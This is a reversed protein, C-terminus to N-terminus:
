ARPQDPANQRTQKSVGHESSLQSLQAALTDRRRCFDDWADLASQSEAFLHEQWDSGIRDSLMRRLHRRVGRRLRATFAWLLFMGWLALWFLSLLYVDWGFLPRPDTAFWSEYFFNWGLRGFLLVALADFALEYSWRVWWRCHPQAAEKVIEDLTVSLRETLDAAATEAQERLAAPKNERLPLGCESLYGDIVLAADRLNALYLTDRLAHSRPSQTKERRKQQLNRVGEWAGWIALQLSSRVRLLAAGSLLWGLNRYGRLVLSFGGPGWRQTIRDVLRMEWARLNTGLEDELEGFVKAAVAKRHEQLATRLQEAAPATRDLQRRCQDLTEGILDLCNAQRIRPVSSAASRNELWTYLEAFEGRVARGAQRDALAQLCDVRYIREVAHHEGLQARWDDRIDDETDAHTQVFVLRAGAAAAALEEAVVASRYKQQTATVLIVDCEPLIRRLRALNTDRADASETTDPDPCDVLVLHELSPSSSRVVACEIDALGLLDLDLEPSCVITPRETTPRRRDSAVVERGVLANVLASKGTGTGGLTAVILPASLRAQLRRLRPLLREVLARCTQAAPWDPASEGWEGLAALLTDLEAWFTWDDTPRQM